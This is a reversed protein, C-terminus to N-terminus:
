SAATLAEAGGVIDLLDATISSQRAKNLKLTLADIMDDCNNSANNMALMRSSHESTMSEALSIYIKSHLYAPLLDEFVSQLDPEFIYDLVKAREEASVNRMLTSQDLDLFKEMVPKCVATSVFQSYILHVEDTQGSLYREQIFNSIDDAMQHEVEGGSDGFHQVIPWQRRGFYANARNGVCILELAGLREEKLRDEAIRILNANYSGCLGRDSAFVVLTGRKSKRAAFLPHGTIEAQPALRGLLMELNRIYPRSAMLSSQARRLKSAAVMEMASTIQKTSKISKVRRRLDKLTEAM